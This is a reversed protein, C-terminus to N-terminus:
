DVTSTLFPSISAMLHFIVSNVLSIELNLESFLFWLCCTSCSLVLIESNCDIISASYRFISDRLQFILSNRNFILREVALDAFQLWRYLWIDQFNIAWCCLIDISISFPLLMWFTFIKKSAFVILFCTKLNLVAWLFM